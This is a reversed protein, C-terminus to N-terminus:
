RRMPEQTGRFLRDKRDSGEQIGGGRRTSPDGRDAEDINKADKTREKKISGKAGGGMPSGGNLVFMNKSDPNFLLISEGKLSSAREQGGSKGRTKKTEARM